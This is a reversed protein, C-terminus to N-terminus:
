HLTYALSIEEQVKKRYEEKGIQHSYHTLKILRKYEGTELNETLIQHVMGGFALIVPKESKLDSIEKRLVGLNEKVIKPNNKLYKKVDSSDVMEFNKIVDTMYAGYYETEEFAFRIKFDNARPNADHFNKFPEEFPRSINLGIMMVKPNLLQFLSDNRSVDFVSMDAMNSKPKDTVKAWIAWSSYGGHKQRILEFVEKTIM